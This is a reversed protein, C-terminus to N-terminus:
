PKGGWSFIKLECIEAEIKAGKQRGKVDRPKSGRGRADPVEM